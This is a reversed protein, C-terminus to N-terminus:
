VLSEEAVEKTVALLSRIEPLNADRYDDEELWNIEALNGVRTEMRTAVRTAM